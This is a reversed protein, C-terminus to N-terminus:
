TSYKRPVKPTAGNQSCVFAALRNAHDHIQEIQKKNLLGVAVAATFSDGAGVTDAIQINEVNLHSRKGCGFLVSGDGGKTLVILNLSYRNELEKLIEDETGTIGLLDAVLPLEEDNLKFVNAFELMSDIIEESYYHQRINIDFIRICDEKTAKLFERITNRSIESRQCLSGFCVADVTSAFELLEDSLPIFDWAVNEHIIYGPSGKEDLEISVIGTPHDKDVAVFSHNLELKDVCELIEDGLADKGICSVVYGQAGLCHAHYAFNTPAGGLQKGDPLMDWLIEGLGAVIFGNKSTNMKKNKHKKNM